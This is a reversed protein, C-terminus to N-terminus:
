APSKEVQFPAVHDEPPANSLPTVATLQRELESQTATSSRPRDTVHFPDDHDGGRVMEPALPSTDREHEEADNQIVISSPVEDLPIGDRASFHSPDIHDQVSNGDPLGVDTDQGEDVNQM